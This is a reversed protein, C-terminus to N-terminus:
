SKGKRLVAIYSGCLVLVLAIFVNVGPVIDNIFFTAFPTLVPKIFFVLSAGIAGKELAKFYAWYGVGTVVIGLYALHPLNTLNVSGIIETKTVLLAILLVISGAFFSFGTQIAGNIKGMLKKSLVSYLSFTFAALVALVISLVNTGAKLDACVLVGAACLIVAIIKPLTIKDKLVLAALLITFVSNASFIIAIVAPSQAISVAYQLLIMSGCICLVGLLVITAWDRMNLSINRKKLEKVSIPLLMLGGIFFRIFTISYPNIEGAILKSVPELTTFALTAIIIYVIGKKM